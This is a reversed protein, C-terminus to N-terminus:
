SIATVVEGTSLDNVKDKSLGTKRAFFWDTGAEGYLSDVANDDHVTATKLYYSGNRGGSLTGSLHKVRTAYDADTRGWEQMVALLATVNTDYDTYAGILIDDGGGGRLTDAGLGGILLDRGSGGTFADNGAGGVLVNNATSGGADVTDNGDGGFVFASVALGGTLRITDDGGNGYVLLHGFAAGGPAAFTGVSYGNISLAVGNGTVASFVLTEANASGEVVLAMRTADGPDTQITASVDFVTVYQYAAYSTYNQGGVTATATVGAYYSGGTAYVHQVATGSPGSVTQDVIGDNNWDIAYSFVTGAPMSGAALTFTLTQNRLGASPGTITALPIVQIGAQTSTLASNGTDTVSVSQTGVTRLTASFGHAGYDSATFTFNAPLTALGDTSTFHVTGAYNTAQNGYADYAYVGFAGSDGSTMTSWLDALVLSSAAAPTVVIGDLTARFDPTTTDAVAVLQAGATKLTVSFTHTGSDGATFTYDAPLVAQPDYSTFHVTGTYGTLVNLDTGLATVTVTQAVGATTSSPMGSIVFSRWDQTNLLVSVNGTDQNTVAVDAFGDGNFDGAAVGPLYGGGAASTQPTAFTGDGHGLLV